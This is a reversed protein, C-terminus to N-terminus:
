HVLGSLRLMGICMETEFRIEYLTEMNNYRESERQLIWEHPQIGIKFFYDRLLSKSPKPTELWTALERHTVTISHNQWQKWQQRELDNM